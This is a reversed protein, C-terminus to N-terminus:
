GDMWRPRVDVTWRMPRGKAAWEVAKQRYLARYAAHVDGAPDCAESRAFPTRGLPVNCILTCGISVIASKEARATGFRRLHADCLEAGHLAAWTLNGVGEAIWRAFRGNINYPRRQGNFSIGLRHAADSLIQLTEGVQSVVHRDCLARAAEIPDPDIAFLQM